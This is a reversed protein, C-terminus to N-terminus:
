GQFSINGYTSEKKKDTDSKKNTKKKAGTDTKGASGPTQSLPSPASNSGSLKNKRAEAKAKEVTMGQENIIENWASELQRMIPLAQQIRRPNKEVNAQVLNYLIFDYLNYLDRAIEGGVEMDLSAMLETIIDQAKLLKEHSQQNNNNELATKAQKMFKIAGEYLMLLIQERSATEIRTSKYATMPDSAM